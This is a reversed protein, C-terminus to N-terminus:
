NKSIRYKTDPKRKKMNILEKVFNKVECLLM